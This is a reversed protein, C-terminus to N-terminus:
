EMPHINTDKQKKVISAIHGAAKHEWGWVRDVATSQRGKFVM